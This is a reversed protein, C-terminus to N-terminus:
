PRWTPGFTQGIISLSAELKAVHCKDPDEDGGMALPVDFTFARGYSLSGLRARARAFLATDLFRAQSKEDTLVHELLDSLNRAVVFARGYQVALFFLEERERSSLFLNGFATTAFADYGQVFPWELREILTRADQRTTVTLLGDNYVGAPLSAGFVSDGEVTQSRTLGGIRTDEGVGNRRAGGMGALEM